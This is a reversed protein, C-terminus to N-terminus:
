QLEISVVSGEGERTERYNLAVKQNTWSCSFSDAGIVIAHATDAVKMKWTKNGALVTMLASPRASCDINLLKGKIFKTPGANRTLLSTPEASTESSSEAHLSAKDAARNPEGGNGSKTAPLMHVKAAQARLLTSAARSAVEPSASGQLATLLAIGEDLQRNSLYMLALNFQYDENRPNM